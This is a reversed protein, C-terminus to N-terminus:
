PNARVMFCWMKRLAIVIKEGSRNPDTTLGVFWAENRNFLSNPNSGFLKIQKAITSAGSQHVAFRSKPGTATARMGCIKHLKLCVSASASRRLGANNIVPKPKPGQFLLQNFLVSGEGFKGIPGEDAAIGFVLRKKPGSRLRAVRRTLLIPPTFGYLKRTHYGATVGAASGTKATCVVGKRERQMRTNKANYLQPVM